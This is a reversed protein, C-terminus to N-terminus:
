IKLHGSHPGAERDVPPPIVGGGGGGQRHLRGVRRGEPHMTGVGVAPGAGTGM